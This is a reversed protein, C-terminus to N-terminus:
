CVVSSLLRMLEVHRFNLKNRCSSVLLVYGNFDLNRRKSEATVVVMIYAHSDHVNVFSMVVVNFRVCRRISLSMRLVGLRRACGGFWWLVLLWDVSSRDVSSTLLLADFM